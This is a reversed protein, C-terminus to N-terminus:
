QQLRPIKLAPTLTQLKLNELWLTPTGCLFLSKSDRSIIKGRSRWVTMVVRIDTAPSLPHQRNGSVAYLMCTGDTCQLYQVLRLFLTMPRQLGDCMVHTRPRHLYQLQLGDVHHHVFERILSLVIDGFAPQWVTFVAIDLSHQLTGTYTQTSRYM